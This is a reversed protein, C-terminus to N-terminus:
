RAQFFCADVAAVAGGTRNAWNNEYVCGDILAQMTVYSFFVAAGQGGTGDTDNNAINGEFRSGTVAVRTLNSASIAAGNGIGVTNNTFVSNSVVAQQGQGLALASYGRAGSNGEFTSKTVTVDVVGLLYVAGSIAACEAVVCGEVRARSVRDKVDHGPSYYVAAGMGSPASVNSFTTDSVLLETVRTLHLGGGNGDAGRM